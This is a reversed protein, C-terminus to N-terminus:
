ILFKKKKDFYENIFFYLIVVGSTFKILIGLLMDKPLTLSVTYSKTYGFVYILTSCLVLGLLILLNEKIENRHSAVPNAVLVPKMIQNMVSNQLNVLFNVPMTTEIEENLIQKLKNM